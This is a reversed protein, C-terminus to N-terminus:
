RSSGSYKTVDGVDDRGGGSGHQEGDAVVGADFWQGARRRRRTTSGRGSGACRHHGARRQQQRVRQELRGFRDRGRPPRRAPDIRGLHRSRYTSPGTSCTPTTRTSSRASTSAPSCSASPSARATRGPPSHKTWDSVESPAASRNLVHKYLRSVWSAPDRGSATFYEDSALFGAEMDQQTVGRNLQVLWNAAGTGEPTRGLNTQYSDSILGSRFEGSATIANAVAVRPTGSLLSSTWSNLGATDPKRHLPRRVRRDRLHAAGDDPRHRHPGLGDARGDGRRQDGAGCRGRRAAWWSPQPWAGTALSATLRWTAPSRISGPNSFTPAECALRTTEAAQSVVHAGHSEGRGRLLNARITSM